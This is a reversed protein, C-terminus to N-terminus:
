KHKGKGHGHGSPAPEPATDDPAPAQAPAAADPFGALLPSQATATAHGDDDPADGGDGMVLALAPSVLVIAMITGLVISVIDPM